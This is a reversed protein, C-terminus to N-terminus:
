SLGGEPKAIRNFFRGALDAGTVVSDVGWTFFGRQGKM